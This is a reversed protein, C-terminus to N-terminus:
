FVSEVAAMMEKISFPKSIVYDACAEHINSFEYASMIIVAIHSTLANEKIQKCLEIGNGDPLMIDLIIVDPFKAALEVELDHASAGMRVEYHARKLIYEISYRIDNDDEIILISKKVGM